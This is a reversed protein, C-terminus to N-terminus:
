EAVGGETEPENWELIIIYMRRILELISLVFGIPFAIYAYWMPVRLTPSIARLGNRILIMSSILCAVVVVLSALHRILYLIKMPKGKIYVDVVDIKMQTNDKIGLNVGLFIIWVFMYRTLEESWALSQGMVYRMFVQIPIIVCMAMLLFGCFYFVVNQMTDLVKGLSHLISKM